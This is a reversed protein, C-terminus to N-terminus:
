RIRTTVAALRYDYYEVDYKANVGGMATALEFRMGVSRPLWVGPFPESMRMSAKLGDVRVITRGPLFDMDINDFEYQLIQHAGPEVWLTVLSSKNMKEEVDDDRERLERNPRTRGETFLKTPYYEIRLVERGDLQERGALAYQGPDFKFRLFYASSVFGPEISQLLVDGPAAGPEAPAVPERGEREASRQDRRQQRRLWADEARRRDEDSLTVGDARVPSRVFFGERVFWSYEKRFGYLPIQGPGLFQFTEREELVYQQLKKWNEDRRELVSSMFADLDSQASASVAAVAVSLVVLLRTPM